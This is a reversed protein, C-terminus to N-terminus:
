DRRGVPARRGEGAASDLMLGNVLLALSENLLVPVPASDDSLEFNGEHCVTQAALRVFFAIPASRGGRATPHIQCIGHQCAVQCGPARKESADEHLIMM